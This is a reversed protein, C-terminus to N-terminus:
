RLNAAYGNYHEHVAALTAVTREEWDAAHLARIHWSHRASGHLRRDLCYKATRDVWANWARLQAEGALPHAVFTPSRKDHSPVWVFQVFCGFGELDAILRHLSSALLPVEGCAGQAVDIAAQCDSVIVLTSFRFQGQISLLAGRLVLRIAEIEARFSGQDEGAVGASIARDTGPCVVAFCAVDHKMAGDTAVFCHDSILPIQDLLDAMENVLGGPDVVIPPSPFEPLPKAFLREEVRDVPALLGQHFSATAECAWMLHPRSPLVQGCMCQARADDATLRLGPFSNWVSCGTAKAAHRMWESDAKKWQKKHGAFLCHWWQEPRQLNLGSALNQVDDYRHRDKKIRGCTIAEQRRLYSYVWQQIVTENDVGIEFTRLVGHSDRRQIFGHDPTVWWGLLDLVHTVAPVFQHWPTLAIDVGIQEIWRPHRLHYRIGAHLTNLLSSGVPDCEWGMLELAIIRPMDQLGRGQIAHLIDGRMDALMKQDHAVLGTAWGCLPLVLQKIMVARVSSPVPLHSICNTRCRIKSRVDKDFSICNRHGILHVLGLVKVRDSLVYHCQKALELAAASPRAAIACKSARCIFGCAADFGDSNEKAQVLQQFNGQKSFVLRDDVFSLAKVGALRVQVSWVPLFGATLLPSCPCGQLLGREQRIWQGAAVGKYTM